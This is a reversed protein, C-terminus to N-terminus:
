RGDLKPLFCTVKAGDGTNIRVLEESLKVNNADESLIWCILASGPQAAARYAAAAQSDPTRSALCSPSGCLCPPPSIVHISCFPAPEGCCSVTILPNHTFPALYMIIPINTSRGVVLGSCASSQPRKMGNVQCTVQKCSCCVVRGRVM